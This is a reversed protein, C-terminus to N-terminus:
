FRTSTGAEHAWVRVSGAIRRLCVRDVLLDHIAMATAKRIAIGIAIGIAVTM